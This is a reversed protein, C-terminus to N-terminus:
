AAEGTCRGVKLWMEPKLSDKAASPFTIASIHWFIPKESLQFTFNALLSSLVVKMELQSFTFGVCSRGGGVFTMLNSYVGPISADEVAKPLPALWREPKWEEADEGWLAKNRNCARVGVLMNTGKPIPIHSLMSGDSGRMPQSLPLTTDRFAERLVIPTPPYMRLTEKCIADLYPLSHLKEYPIYGDGAELIERRVKAQADPHESLLQLVQAMVHSTTDTAAFLLTNIQGVIEEDPLRDAEEVAMNAKLLVSMIDKGAAYEGKQLAAKKEEIIKVSTQHLIDVVRKLKQTRPIPIRDVIWRRLWAPGLQLLLPSTQRVIMMYLYDKAARTFPDTADDTTLSDFSHGMGAQGIIELATRGMWELMDLDRPADQVRQSIADVLRNTVEYFVPTLDRLHKASFVPMLMKRQKRHTDGLVSLLGSGLLMNNSRILWEIQDYTGQERLVISQLAAPDFAYLWKRGLVANIKVVGGYQSSVKDHFGWAESDFLEGLNGAVISTSPPGAVVDLPSKVFLPRLLTWLGWAVGGAIVLYLLM